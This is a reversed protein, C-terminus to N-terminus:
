SAEDKRVYLADGWGHKTMETLERSFGYPELFSDIEPILACDKYLYKENVELYVYDLHALQEHMGKLALLEAGQIDINAFNFLACNYGKKELMTDVKYAWTQIKGIYQVQPHEVAHEEFDLISSSEGNNAVNLEILKTDEDCAAALIMSSGINNITRNLINVALTTNAEVWIVREIGCSTYGELEEANHAGLHLVGTVPTKEFYPKLRDFTILM